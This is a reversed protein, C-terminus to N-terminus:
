NDPIDRVDVHNVYPHVLCYTKTCEDYTVGTLGIICKMGSVTKLIKIERKIKSDRVSSPSSLVQSLCKSSLM